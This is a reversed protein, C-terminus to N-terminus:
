SNKEQSENNEYLIPTETYKVGFLDL